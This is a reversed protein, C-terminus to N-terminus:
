GRLKVRPMCNRTSLFDRPPNKRRSLQQRRQILSGAHLFRRFDSYTVTPSPCTARGDGLRCDSVGGHVLPNRRVTVEWESCGYQPKANPVQQAAHSAVHPVVAVQEAAAGPCSERPGCSHPRITGPCNRPRPVSPWVAPLFGGTSAAIAEKQNEAGARGIGEDRLFAAKRMVRDTRSAIHRRGGSPRIRCLCVCRTASSTLTRQSSELAAVQADVDRDFGVSLPDVAQRRVGAGDLFPEGRAGLELFGAQPRDDGDSRQQRDRIGSPNKARM